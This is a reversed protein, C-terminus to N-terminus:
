KKEKPKKPPKPPEQGERISEPKLPPKSPMHGKEIIKNDKGM